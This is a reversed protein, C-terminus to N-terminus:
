EEQLASMERLRARHAARPVFRLFHVQSGEFLQGCLCFSQIEWGGYASIRHRHNRFARIVLLKGDHFTWGQWDGPIIRKNAHLCFLAIAQKSPKLANRKYKDTTQHSVCCWAAVLEASYGYFMNLVRPKDFKRPM